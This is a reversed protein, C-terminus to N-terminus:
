PAGNQIRNDTLFAFHLFFFTTKRFFHASLSPFPLQFASSSASSVASTSSFYPLRTRLFPQPHPSFIFCIIKFPPPSSPVFSSFYPPNKGFSATKGFSAASLHRRLLFFCPTATQITGYSSNTRKLTTWRQVTAALCFEGKNYLRLVFCLLRHM